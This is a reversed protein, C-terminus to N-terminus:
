TAIITGTMGPHLTCNYEYRGKKRAKWKYTGDPPFDPSSFSGNKAKVNHTVIDDNRWKVTDGATITVSKPVFASNTISVAVTKSTTATAAPVLGVALAAARIHRWTYSM